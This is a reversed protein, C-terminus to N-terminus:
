IGKKSNWFTDGYLWLYRNAGVKISSIADGGLFGDKFPFAGAYCVMEIQCSGSMDLFGIYYAVLRKSVYKLSIGSNRRLM